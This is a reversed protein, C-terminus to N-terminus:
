STKTKHKRSVDMRFLNSATPLCLRKWCKAQTPAKFESLIKFKVIGHPYRSLLCFVSTRCFTLSKLTLKIFGVYTHFQISSLPITTWIKAVYIRFSNKRITELFLMESLIKISCLYSFINLPRISAEWILFALDSVTFKSGCTSKTIGLCGHKINLM